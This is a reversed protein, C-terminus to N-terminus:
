PHRPPSRPGPDRVRGIEDVGVKRFGLAQLQRASYKREKLERKRIRNPVNAEYHDDLWIRDGSAKRVRVIRRESGEGLAGMDDIHLRMLRRAAHDTRGSQKDAPRFAEIDFEAQNADFTPVVVLRWSKDRMGWVDVFENGGPTYGKYPRGAADRIPIVRQMDQVRVRRVRQRRGNLRVGVTTARDAFEAANGGAAGVQLWLDKLASRLAPDRM